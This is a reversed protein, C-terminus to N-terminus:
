SYPVKLTLDLDDDRAPSVKIDEGSSSTTDVMEGSFPTPVERVVLNDDMDDYPDQADQDFVDGRLGKSDNSSTGDGSVTASTGGHPIFALNNPDIVGESTPAALEILKDRIM